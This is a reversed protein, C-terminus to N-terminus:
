LTEVFERIRKLGKEIQEESTAFSIRVYDRGNEGFGIGPVVAVYKEELLRKAFDEGRLGTGSVDLFVYFAGKPESFSLKKISTLGDLLLTRRARFTAVMSDIAKLSGESLMARAVGDQIFTPVCNASYQHVKLMQTILRADSAVYGLRWGTMAYAKSFGNVTITREKMGPFAAISICEEGDYTIKNYIEDSVVLLNNNVALEAIKELKDKKFVIGTPNSPNNIVIMKTRPTIKAALEEIDPQLGNEKRLPVDIVKGGAMKIVNKYNMFAPTFIIVEDGSDVFAMIGINVAEAGGITILMETEPDYELGDSNKLQRCVAQRLSLMGRNPPYHTMNNKLSEIAADIIDKPTNFDPEGIQFYVMDHGQKEIEKAREMVKRVPSFEVESLRDAGRYIDKKDM